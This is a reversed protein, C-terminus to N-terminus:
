VIVFWQHSSALEVPISKHTNPLCVQFSKPSWHCHKSIENQLQDTSFNTQIFVTFPHMHGREEGHIRVRIPLYSHVKPTLHVLFSPYSHSLQSRRMLPKDNYLLCIIAQLNSDVRYLDTAFHSKWVNDNSGLIM